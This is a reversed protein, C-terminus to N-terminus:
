RRGAREVGGSGAFWSRPPSTINRATGTDLPGYRHQARLEEGGVRPEGPQFFRVVDHIFRPSSRVRGYRDRDVGPVDAVRPLRPRQGDILWPCNRACSSRPTRIPVAGTTSQRDISRDLQSAGPM